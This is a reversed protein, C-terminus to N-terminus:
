TISSRSSGIGPNETLPNMSRPNDSRIRPASRIIEEFGWTMVGAPFCIVKLGRQHCAKLIASIRSQRERDVARNLDVPFANTAFLGCFDVATYGAAAQVDLARVIGDITKDDIVGYPWPELPMAENRVDNIWLEFAIRHTYTRTRKEALPREGLITLPLLPAVSLLKRRNM